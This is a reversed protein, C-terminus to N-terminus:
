KIAELYLSNNKYSTGNSNCDLCDRNFDPVNSENYALSQSGLFGVRCYLQKLGYFDYMWRHREGIGTEVFVMTRISAPILHKVFSVYMGTLKPMIKNFTRINIKKYFPVSPTKEGLVTNQVRARIYQAFEYDPGNMVNKFFLGMKGAPCMRVMQDLLEIMIWEYKKAKQPDQDSLLLVRLYERCTEAFDPVVTRVIGGKKLIRRAEGLVFAAQESTFHEIVHSSYVVDFSNDEYPFGKLINVNRVRKDNSYFDINVWGNAIRNGCGFNLKKM